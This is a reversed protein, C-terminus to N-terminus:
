SLHQKIFEVEQKNLYQLSNTFSYFYYKKLLLLKEVNEDAIAEKMAPIMQKNTVGFRGHQVLEEGQKKNM